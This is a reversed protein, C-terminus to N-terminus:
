TSVPFVQRLLLIATSATTVVGGAAGPAEFTERHPGPVTEKVADDGSCIEQNVADDPPEAKNTPAVNVVGNILEM